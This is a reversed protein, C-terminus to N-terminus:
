RSKSVANIYALPSVSFISPSSKGGPESRRALYRWIDRKCRSHVFVCCHQKGDIVIGFEHSKKGPQKGDIVIDFEHSKEGSVAGGPHALQGGLGSWPLACGRLAGTTIEM